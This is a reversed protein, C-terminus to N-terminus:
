IKLKQKSKYLLFRFAFNSNFLDQANSGMTISGFGNTHLMKKELRFGRTYSLTFFHKRRQPILFRRINRRSYNNIRAMETCEIYEVSLPICLTSCQLILFQFIKNFNNIQFNKSFSIMPEEKCRFLLAKISMILSTSSIFYLWPIDKKDITSDIMLFLILGFILICKLFTLSGDFLLLHFVEMFIRTSNLIFNENQVHWIM